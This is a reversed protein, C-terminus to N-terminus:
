CLSIMEYNTLRLLSYYAQMRGDTLAPYAVTFAKGMTFVPGRMNKRQTIKAARCDPAELKV